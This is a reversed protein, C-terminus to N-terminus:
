LTSTSNIVISKLESFVSLDVEHSFYNQSNFAKALLMAGEM